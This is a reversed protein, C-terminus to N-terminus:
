SEVSFSSAITESIVRVTSPSPREDQIKGVCLELGDRNIPTKVPIINESKAIM